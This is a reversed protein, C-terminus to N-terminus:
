AARKVRKAIDANSAGLVLLTRMMLDISVSRDGAEMKAVRSQSSGLGEALATQTLGCREWLERVGNAFSLKLAVFRTAM